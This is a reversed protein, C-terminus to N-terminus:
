ISPGIANEDIVIIIRKLKVGRCGMRYPGNYASCFLKPLYNEATYKEDLWLM